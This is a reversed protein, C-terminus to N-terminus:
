ENHLYRCCSNWSGSIGFMEEIGHRSLPLPGLARSVVPAVVKSHGHAMSGVGELVSNPALLTRLVDDRGSPPLIHWFHAHVTSVQVVVSMGLDLLSAVLRIPLCDIIPVIVLEANRQLVNTFRGTVIRQWCQHRERMSVEVLDGSDSPLPADLLALPLHFTLAGGLKSVYEFVAQTTDGPNPLCPRCPLGAFTGSFSFHRLSGKSSWEGDSMSGAMAWVGCGVTAAKAVCSCSRKDAAKADPSSASWHLITCRIVKESAIWVRMVDCLVDWSSASQLDAVIANAGRRYWLGSSTSEELFPCFGAKAPHTHTVCRFLHLVEITKILKVQLLCPLQKGLWALSAIPDLRFPIHVCM